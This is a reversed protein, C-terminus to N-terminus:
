TLTDFKTALVEITIAFEKGVQYWGYCYLLLELTFILYLEEWQMIVSQNLLLGMLVM